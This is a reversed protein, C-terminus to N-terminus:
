VAEPSETPDTLPLARIAAECGTAAEFGDADDYTTEALDGCQLACRERMDERAAKIAPEILHLYAATVADHVLDYLDGPGENYTLRLENVAAEVAADLGPIMPDTM